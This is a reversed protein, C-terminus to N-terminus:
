HGLASVDATDLALIAGTKGGSVWAEATSNPLTIHALGSLFIV